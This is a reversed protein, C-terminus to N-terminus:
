PRSDAAVHTRNESSRRSRHTARAVLALARGMDYAVAVALAQVAQVPGWAFDHRRMAHAKLGSLALIPLLALGAAAPAGAALAALALALAALDAVPVLLSRLHRLTRPGRLTVRVNDRGRWLEGFFVASLRRPDGLHVSRMDPEAILRYGAAHLRQCLDVDECTELSTDFGGVREFASRRVAVNGSGLWLVDQGIQPRPRLGNYRRQVWNAGAPPSYPYGAAGVRADTLAGIAASVWGSSIEHDADVFALVDGLAAAAGANRMDSVRASPKVLVTAGSQRAVQRSADTSGNDVVIVEVLAPDCAQRALSALCGALRAADNRVPIIFSVRPRASTM